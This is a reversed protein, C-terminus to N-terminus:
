GPIAHEGRERPHVTALTGIVGLTITNGASAPIFRLRRCYTRASVRTGRARPSSGDVQITEPFVERHEGRERPHVASARASTGSRLTNGASAPIFRRPRQSWGAHHRTGRARPSSGRLALGSFAGPQHEGRERPHVAARQGRQPPPPTNGASAPIFRFNDTVQSLMEPTGRARPSSGRISRRAPSM